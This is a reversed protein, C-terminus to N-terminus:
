RYSHTPAQISQYRYQGFPVMELSVLPDLADIQSRARVVADHARNLNEFNGILARIRDDTDDPELMHHRVFETLNGVSKMAVTQYFLELAQAHPIGLERRLQMAYEDFSDFPPKARKDSRLRKKLAQIDAGFGTFDDAICLATPAVIYLRDPTRERRCRCAPRQPHRM